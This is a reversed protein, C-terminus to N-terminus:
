FEIFENAYVTGNKYVSMIQPSLLIENGDITEPKEGSYVTYWKEGDQSVETINNHYTRGDPYYHWIKIKSINELYGLDFNLVATGGLGSPEYSSNVNGDTIVSNTYNTTGIKFDRGWALNEGIDNIVEFECWHNLSNVTNGTISDRIYRIKMADERFMDAKLVGQKSLGSGEYADLSECFQLDSICEIKINRMSYNHGYGLTAFRVYQCSYRIDNGGMFDVEYHTWSTPINANSFFIPYYYTPGSLFCRVTTGAPITGQNWASSLTLVNESFSTYVSEIRSRNTGWAKMDCIGMRHHTYTTNWNATSALTVTTDGNNLANALTTTTNAVGNTTNIGIVYNKKNDYPYLCTYFANSDKSNAKLDFSLRYKRNSSVPIFESHLLSGTVTLEGNSVSLNNGSWCETGHSMDGNYILNTNAM